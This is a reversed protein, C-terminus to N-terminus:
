ERKPSHFELKCWGGGATAEADSATERADM